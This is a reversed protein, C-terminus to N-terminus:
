GACQWIYNKFHNNLVQMDAQSSDACTDEFDYFITEVMSDLCRGIANRNVNYQRGSQGRIADDIMRSIAAYKQDVSLRNWKSCSMASAPLAHVLMVGLALLLTLLASKRM